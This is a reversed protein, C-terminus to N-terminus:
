WGNQHVVDSLSLRTKTQKSNDAYGVPIVLIVAQDAPINLAEQVARESFGEMPCTALGAIEAALMFTQAAISVQKALWYDRHVAQLKPIPIFRGVITEALAKWLWGFGLFGRDFSLPVNKRLLQEYEASNARADRDQRLIREFNHEVVHRDGTFVVVAGAELVQRQNMCAPYLKEKLDKDTVVIFHTPQLNFASPSWRAAELIEHLLEAPVIKPQFHRTSRRSRVIETFQNLNISM